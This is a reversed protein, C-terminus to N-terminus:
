QREAAPDALTCDIPFDNGYRKHLEQIKFTYQGGKVIDYYAEYKSTLAALVPGPFKSIPSLFLRYFALSSLYISLCLLLIPVATWASYLVNTLSM